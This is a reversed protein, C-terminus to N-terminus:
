QDNQLISFLSTIVTDGNEPLDHNETLGLRIINFPKERQFYCNSTETSHIPSNKLNRHGDFHAPLRNFQFSHSCPGQM